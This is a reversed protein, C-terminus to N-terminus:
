LIGTDVNLCPGPLPPMNALYFTLDRMYAGGGGVSEVLALTAFHPAYVHIHSVVTYNRDVIAACINSDGILTYFLGRLLHDM